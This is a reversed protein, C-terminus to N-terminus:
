LWIWLFALDYICIRLTSKSLSIRSRNKGWNQIAIPCESFKHHTLSATALKGANQSPLTTEDETVTLVLIQGRGTDSQTETLEETEVFRFFIVM